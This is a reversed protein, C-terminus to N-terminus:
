WAQIRIAPRRELAVDSQEFGISRLRVDRSEAHFVHGQTARFRYGSLYSFVGYGHGRYVLLVGLEHEGRSVSTTFVAFRRKGLVRPDNSDFVLEGDLAFAAGVLRFGDGMANEHELTVPVGWYSSTCGRAADYTRADACATATEKSSSGALRPEPMPHQVRSTGGCAGLAFCLLVPLPKV